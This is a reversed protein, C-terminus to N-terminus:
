RKTRDQDECFLFSLGDKELSGGESRAPCKGVTKAFRESYNSAQVEAETWSIAKGYYDYASLDDPRPISSGSRAVMGSLVDALSPTSLMAQEWDPQGREGEATLVNGDGGLRLAKSLVTDKETRSTHEEPRQQLESHITVLPSKTNKINPYIMFRGHIQMWEMVIRLWTPWDVPLSLEADISQLLQPDSSLRHKLFGHFQVWEDGFYLAAESSPNQWLTVPMAHASSRKLSSPPTLSVGLQGSSISEMRGGYKYELVMYMLFQYYNSSLEAAASLVLVHSHTSRAPYFSEVFRSSAMAPTMLKSDIRHRLTLKSDALSSHSPWRFASLYDFIFSDVDPPLDLIIRPFALGSYDADKISRLLRPVGGSSDRPVHILIDIQIQDWQRLSATDLRLMWSDPNPLQLLPLDLSSTRGKLGNRLFFDERASDDFFVARLPLVRHIHGVAAECSIQMRHVSSHQAFDPQAEHWRVPCDPEPIGSLALIESFAIEQGGMAAVHVTTRNYAAMACAAILVSSASYPSAFAFLVNDWNNDDIPGLSSGLKFYKIPGDYQEQGQQPGPEQPRTPALPRLRGYRPDVRESVPPVDTPINKIFLYLLWGALLTLIIRRKRVVVLLHLIAALGRKGSQKTGDDHRKGREGFGYPRRATAM